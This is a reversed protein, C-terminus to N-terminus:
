VDGARTCYEHTHLVVLTRTDSFISVSASCPFREHVSTTFGLARKRRESEIEEGSRKKGAETEREGERNISTASTGNATTLRLIKKRM